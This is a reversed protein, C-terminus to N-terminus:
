KEITHHIAILQQLSRGKLASPADAAPCLNSREPFIKIESGYSTGFM